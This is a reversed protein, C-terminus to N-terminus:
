EHAVHHTSLPLGTVVLADLTDILEILEDDYILRRDAPRRARIGARVDFKEVVDPRQVRLQGLRLPAAVFWASEAEVHLAAPTFRAIPVARIAQFHIEQCVHPYSTRHALAM